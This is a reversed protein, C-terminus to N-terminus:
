KSNMSNRFRGNRSFNCGARKNLNFVNLKLYSVQFYVYLSEHFQDFRVMTICKKQFNPSNQLFTDTAFYKNLMFIQEYTSVLLGKKEKMLDKAAVYKKM